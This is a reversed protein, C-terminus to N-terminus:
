GARKELREVHKRDLITLVGQMIKTLEQKTDRLEQRLERKTEELKESLAALGEGFAKVNSQIQELIVVVHRDDM